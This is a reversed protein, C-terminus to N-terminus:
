EIKTVPYDAAEVANKLEDDSVNKSLTVIACKEKFSVNAEVVGDLAELAKKVRKECHQCM